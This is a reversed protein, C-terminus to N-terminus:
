AAETESSLPAAYGSEYARVVLEERTRAGLKRRLHQVHTRVTADTIVLREGIESNTAGRSILALVERERTSCEEVLEPPLPRLRDLLARLVGPSVVAEGSAIIRVAQVLADPPDSKACYGTAGARLADFALEERPDETLALIGLAPHRKRLIRTARVGDLVPVNLDVVAVDPERDGVISVARRGDSALGVVDLDEEAELMTAISERAIQEGDAVIVRIPSTHGLEVVL